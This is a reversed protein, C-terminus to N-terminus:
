SWLGTLAHGWSTVTEADPTNSALLIIGDIGAELREGVATLLEDVSSPPQVVCTAVIDARNRGVTSCHDDLVSLKHRIQEATGSVNCADAYRAVTRLTRKEGGGAVLIPLRAQVPRPAAIADTISFYKGSFSAVPETLLLRCIQVAEELRDQRETMSPFDLGYATHEGADWAAGMGLVARGGSVIDLTTVAKALLSPQRFTVPSVLAGVSVKNTAVALGGLVTYAELMPSNPGGGIAGQLMHDPVWISDFGSADAAQAVSVLHSFLEHSGLDYSVSAFHLGLRLM